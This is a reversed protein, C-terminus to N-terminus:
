LALDTGAAPRGRGPPPGAPWELVALLVLPMQRVPVPVEEKLRLVMVCRRVGEARVSPTSFTAVKVTLFNGLISLDCLTKM